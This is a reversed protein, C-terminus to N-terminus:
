RPGGLAHTVMLLQALSGLFGPTLRVFVARGAPTLEGRDVLADAAMEILHQTIEALDVVSRRGGGFNAECGVCTVDPHGFLQIRHGLDGALLYCETLASGAESRGHRPRACRTM